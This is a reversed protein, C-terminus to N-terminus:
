KGYIGDLMNWFLSSIIISHALVLQGDDSVYLVHLHERYYMRGASLILTTCPAIAPHDWKRESQEELQEMSLEHIEGKGSLM